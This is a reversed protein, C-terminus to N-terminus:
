AHKKLPQFLLQDLRQDRKQRFYELGLPITEQQSKTWSAHTGFLSDFWPLFNSYNTNTYPLHASHHIRHYNPTVVLYKLWRELLGIRINGHSFAIQFSRLLSVLFVVIPAPMFILIILLDTFFAFLVEVPHHRHSTTADVNIDSHHVSHFRWLFAFIHFSRHKWYSALELCLFTIIFQFPLSVQLGPLFGLFIDSVLSNIIIALGPSLIILFLQNFITIGINNLWRFLNLEQRHRAPAISESLIVLAMSGYVALILIAPAEGQILPVIDM